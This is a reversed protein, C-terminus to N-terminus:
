RSKILGRNSSHCIAVLKAGQFLVWKDVRLEIPRCDPLATSRGPARPFFRYELKCLDNALTPKRHSCSQSGRKGAPALRQEQLHGMVRRVSGILQELGREM